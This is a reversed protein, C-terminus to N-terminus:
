ATGGLRRIEAALRLREEVNVSRAHKEALEAIRQTPDKPTGRYGPRRENNCSACVGRANALSNDGGHAVPVVHDVQTAPDGCVQCTYRDRRLAKQRTKRWETTSTARSSPSRPNLRAHKACRIGAGTVIEPCTDEACV